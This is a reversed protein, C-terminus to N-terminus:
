KSTFATLMIAEIGENLDQQVAQSIRLSFDDYVEQITDKLAHSGKTGERGIKQQTFYAMRKELTDSNTPLSGNYTNPLSGHFKVKVWDLMAKYPPFHPKTDYEIYKWYDELRLSVDIHTNSIEFAYDITSALKGSAIHNLIYLNDKYTQRVAEAYDKLAQITHTWKIEEEM